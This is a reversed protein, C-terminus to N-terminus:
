NLCSPNAEAQPLHSIAPETARSASSISTGISDDVCVGLISNLNVEYWNNLSDQTSESDQQLSKLRSSEKIEAKENEIQAEQRCMGFRWHQIVSNRTPDPPVASAQLKMMEIRLERVSLVGESTM